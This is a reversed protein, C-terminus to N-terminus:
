DQLNLLSIITPKFLKQIEMVVVFSLVAILSIVTIDGWQPLTLPVVDYYANLLPITTAIVGPLIIGLIVFLIKGISRIYGSAILEYAVFGSNCFLTLYVLITSIKVLDLYQYQLYTYACAIAAILGSITGFPLVERFFYKNGRVSRRAFAVVYSPLSSSFFSYILIAAPLLPLVLGAVACFIIFFISHLTKSMFLKNMYKLNAIINQGEFLINPVLSFDNNLLVVDAVDRAIKAGSSMAISLNAMKLALVDNVGDGVMGVTKGSRQLAKIITLKDEPKARTFVDYELAADTVSGQYSALEVAKVDTLGINRLSRQVSNIGDGSIIKLDIGLKRFEAITEGIGPNLEEKLSLVWAGHSKGNVVVGLIVRNGAREEKAIYKKVEEKHASSLYDDVSSSAGYILKSNQGDLKFTNVAMKTKSTFPEQDYDSINLKPVDKWYVGIAAFTKNKGYVLDKIGNFMGGVTKADCDWYQAKTVTMDNTTITGTKDFCLIDLNALSEIASGRQVLVGKRSLKLVSISFTFTFLFILTQPIILAVATLLPLLSNEFDNGLARASFFTIAGFIISSIVFFIILKDGIDQLKSKRKKFTKSESALVNVYNSSGIGTVQYICQGTVVFSGGLVNEGESKAIYNSEGTLLSEDLQLYEAFLIKGDTPIGEGERVVVIDESVLEEALVEVEKSDRIVTIRKAFDIKIQDLRRKIRIEDVMSVISNVIAFTSFIFVERYKGLIALLVMLPLIYINLLNFFNRLVIRLYSPSVSDVVQNTLGLSQKKAVAQVSLGSLNPKM